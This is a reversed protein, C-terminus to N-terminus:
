SAFAKIQKMEDTIAASLDAASATKDTPASSVGNTAAGWIPRPYHSDNRWRPIIHWHVHAVMNGLSALNIKDPQVLRRIAREVAFVVAMLYQSDGPSLDTMETCHENWIVRCFGPFDAQESGEVRIVRCHRDRWILEGGVSTCFTCTDDLAM